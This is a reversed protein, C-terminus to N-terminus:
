GRLDTTLDINLGNNAVYDNVFRNAQEERASVLNEYARNFFNM